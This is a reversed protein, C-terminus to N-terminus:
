YVEGDTSLNIPMNYLSNIEKASLGKLNEFKKLLGNVDKVALAGLTAFKNRLIGKLDATTNRAHGAPYMILGSDYTKNDDTTIVISTPIGDPYLADYKEGGHAFEIKKMLSRTDKDQLAKEGFDAPTLIM